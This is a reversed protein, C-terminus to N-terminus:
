RGQEQRLVRIREALRARADEIDVTTQRGHGSRDMISDAARIKVAMPVSPDALARAYTAVAPDVLEALRLKAAKRVQPANGGHKSCVPGGPIPRKRCRNGTSKATATCRARGLEPDFTDVTTAASM